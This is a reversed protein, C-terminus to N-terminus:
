FDQREKKLVSKAKFCVNIYFFFLLLFTFM